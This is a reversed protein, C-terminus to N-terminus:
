VHPGAPESIRTSISDRRPRSIVPGRAALDIAPDRQDTRTGQGQWLRNLERQLRLCLMPWILVLWAINRPVPRELGAAVQAERVYRPARALVILTPVGLLLVGPGAALAQAMPHMRRLHKVDYARGLERLDRATSWWLWWIIMWLILWLYPQLVLTLLLWGILAPSRCQVPKARWPVSVQGGFLWSSRPRGNRARWAAALWALRIAAPLIVPLIFLLVFGVLILVGVLGVSPAASIALAAILGVWLVVWCSPVPLSEALDLPPERPVRAGLMAFTERELDYVGTARSMSWSAPTSSLKSGAHPYLNLLLRKLRFASAVPWVIVYLSVSVLGAAAALVAPSAKSLADLVGGASGATPQLAGLMNSLLQSVNVSQPGHNINFLNLVDALLPIHVSLPARPGRGAYHRILQGLLAALVRAVVLAAVALMGLRSVRSRPPLSARFEAVADYADAEGAEAIKIASRRRFAREAERLVGDVHWLMLSRLMWSIRPLRIPSHQRSWWHWRTAAMPTVALGDVVDLTDAYAALLRRVSATIGQMVPAALTGEAAQVATGGRDAGHVSEMPGPGGPAIALCDGGTTAAPRSDASYETRIVM